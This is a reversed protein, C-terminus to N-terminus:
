RQKFETLSCLLVKSNRQYNYLVQRSLPLQDVAIETFGHELFWHSAQTTLVFLEEVGQKKAQQQIHNLLASGNGLNHYNSDVVLCALEAYRSDEEIHLIGCAIVSGGRVLITYDAIDAEIKERSRYVLIGQKELPQILAFIGGIDEITAVRIQDFPDRSLLTGVGDRTFLEILLGGDQDHKIFHVQRVGAQCACLGSFLPLHDAKKLEKQKIIHEVEAQTLEGIPQSVEDELVADSLLYILKDVMLRNAIEMALEIANLNFVEGTLSYGLPAIIVLENNYLKQKISEEDICRVVGTLGLDVGDVVGIPQATIFNGSSVKIQAHQMSSNPLGMSLLAQIQIMTAGVAQKIYAISSKHTKRFGQVFHSQIGAQQQLKEIQPSADFIIILRIGLSNLLAIDHVIKFFRQSDVLLGDFQLVFTKNRHAHIYPAASRFLKVFGAPEDLM